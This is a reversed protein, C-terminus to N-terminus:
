LRDPGLKAVPPVIGGGTEIHQVARNQKVPTHKSVKLRVAGCELAKFPLRGVQGIRVNTTTQRFHINHNSHTKVPEFDIEPFKM